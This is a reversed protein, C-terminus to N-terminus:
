RWSRTPTSTRDRPRPQEVPGPQRHRLHRPQAEPRHDTVGVDLRRREHQQQHLRRLQRVVDQLRAPRRDPDRGVVLHAQRQEGYLSAHHRQLRRQRWGLRRDPGHRQRLDSRELDQRRDEVADSGDALARRGDDSRARLAPRRGARRVGQGRRDRRRAEELGLRPRLRRRLHADVELAQRGHRRRARLGRRVPGPHLLHRQRRSREGRVLRVRRQEDHLLGPRGELGAQAHRREGQQDPDAVLVSPGQPQGHADALRRRRARWAARGHLDTVPHHGQEGCADVRGVLRRAGRSGAPRSMSHDFRITGQANPHGGRPRPPRRLRHTKQWCSGLGM